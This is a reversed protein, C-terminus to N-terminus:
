YVRARNNCRENLQTKGSKTIIKISLSRQRRKKGIYSVLPFPTFM